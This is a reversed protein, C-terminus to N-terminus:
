NPPENVLHTRVDPTRPEILGDNNRKHPSSSFISALFRIIWGTFLTTILLVIIDGWGARILGATRPEFFNEPLSLQKLSEIFWLVYEILVWVSMVISALYRRAKFPWIAVLNVILALCIRERKFIYSYDIYMGWLEDGRPSKLNLLLVSLSLGVLLIAVSRVLYKEMQSVLSLRRNLRSFFNM